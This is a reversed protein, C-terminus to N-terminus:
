LMTYRTLREGKKYLHCDRIRRRALFALTVAKGLSGTGGTILAIKNSFRNTM